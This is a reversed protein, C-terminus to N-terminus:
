ATLKRYIEPIRIPLKSLNDIFVYNVAGYIHSLYSHESKDITICFPHIGARKAELLAQRTDEIGYDGRYGDYDDPKGDSLTILLRTRADMKELVTTLYRIPPGLRTYELARLNAIRRKIRDGYPEDFGKIRYLECRKRTRGSFGYVAFRDRLVQMAECLILLASREMENIWGSTSGSLDILFAAAIDRKDRRLRVFLRESPSLGAMRDTFAEVAADLDIDDGEKQRRLLTQDMSMREFQRKIHQIMGKYQSLIQDPFDLSGEAADTERLLAWNKRYGQRRYDWEDIVHIGEGKEAFVYGTGEPMQCLSRFSHGSMDKAVALYSSPLMGLDEYIEDVVRQMAEPIPVPNGDISLTKPVEQRQITQGELPTNHEGLPVEIHLEECEPLDQVLKALEERFAMKISERRRRIGQEAEEPKLEGVFPIQPLPDYPEPLSELIRYTRMVVGAIDTVNIEPDQARVLAECCKEVRESLSEEELAPLVGLLQWHILAEMARSRPPIGELSDGPALGKKLKGLMRYLGPLTEAMWAEIRLTEALNFLDRALVPDPFLHLFQSLPSILDPDVVQPYRRRLTELLDAAADLRFRYTGLSFQAFKHTVMVKYLQFNLDRDPFTLLSEPLYITQTDTYHDDGIELDLDKAGLAHVFNQLIGYVEHFPTGRGWYLSYQPHKDLQLIFECAPNLGKSDYIDLVVSVWKELDVLSILQLLSKYNLLFHFALEPQVRALTTAYHFVSKRTERDLGDLVEGLGLEELDEEYYFRTSTYLPIPFLMFIENDINKRETVFAM